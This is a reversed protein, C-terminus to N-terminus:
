VQDGIGRQNRKLKTIEDSLTTPPTFEYKIEVTNGSYTLEVSEAVKDSGGGGFDIPYSYGPHTFDVSAVTVGGRINSNKLAAQLLARARFTAGDETTIKPDRLVGPSIERNDNNIATQDKLEASPRDGNSDAAGQLFIANFYSRGAIEPDQNIPDDFGDPASRTEDGRQYSTVPLNAISENGHEITWQFDGYEHLEQLNDFHNRSLELTDIVVLDDGDVTLTHDQILQGGDGSTPSTTSGTDFRDLVVRVRASRGDDSFNVTASDTNQTTTYTSGGDNSLSIQQANSTDNWTQTATASTINFSVPEASFEIQPESDPYPEPGSLANNEDVTNDFDYSFRNDYTALCDVQMDGATAADPAADLTVTYTGPSLESSYTRNGNNNFWNITDTALSDEPVSEIVEGNIILDFAPNQDGSAVFYRFALALTDAPVTYDITVDYSIDGNADLVEVGSEGSFDSNSITSNGGGTDEAEEFHSVEVLELNGNQIAVPDTDTLSTIAEWEANTDASQVQQDNAVQETTQDTVSFNDFPTRPWYDRLADELSIQSYTLSGGLSAYDPRTEELRKAIGDADIESVWRDTHESHNVGVIFGTWLTNGDINVNLRDQRQAYDDLTRNYAVTARLDGKGTHTKAPTFGRALIEDEGLTLENAGGPDLVFEVAM